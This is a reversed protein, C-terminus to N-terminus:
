HTHLSLMGIGQFKGQSMLFGIASIKQKHTMVVKILEAEPEMRIVRHRGPTNDIWYLSGDDFVMKEPHVREKPEMDLGKLVKDVNWHNVINVRCSGDLNSQGFGSAM